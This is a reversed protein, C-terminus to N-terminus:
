EGFPSKYEAEMAEGEKICRELTEDHLRNHVGNALNKDDRLGMDCVYEFADLLEKDPRTERISVAKVYIGYYEPTKSDKLKEAYLFYMTTNGADKYKTAIEALERESMNGHELLALGATDIDSPTYRYKSDFVAMCEAKIETVEEGFRERSAIMKAKHEKRKSLYEADIKNLGETTYLKRNINAKEVELLDLNKVAKEWEERAKCYKAEIKKIYASAKIKSM